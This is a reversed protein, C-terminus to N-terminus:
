DTDPKRNREAEVIRRGWDLLVERLEQYEPDTPEWLELM